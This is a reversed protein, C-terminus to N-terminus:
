MTAVYEGLRELTQKGGEVAGHKEVVMNRLEATPFVARMTLRTKGGEDAFTVVNRFMIHDHDGEGAHQYALREPPTVETFVIRNKYDTGDPGHMVFRWTGGPKLDYQQTTTTFGRPGWWHKIHDPDTWARFVLDRPADFVRVTVIERDATNEESMANLERQLRDFNQENAGAVFPKVRECEEAEDFLMQWTVRTKGAEDAFTMTMQFAHVPELHRFVVRGPKVVETFVSENAYTTGDPGHMDLRWKGGPKLDFEHITNTFGNPGWWRALRASDAFAAFVRDPPVDFVRTSVIERGPTDAKVAM